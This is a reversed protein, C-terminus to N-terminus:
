VGSAPLNEPQRQVLLDHLIAICDGADVTCVVSNYGDSLEDAGIYISACNFLTTDRKQVTSDNDLDFPGAQDHTSERTWVGGVGNSAYLENVTTLAQSSGGDGIEETFVIQQDGGSEFLTFTIGGYNELNFSIGSAVPVTMMIRGLAKM